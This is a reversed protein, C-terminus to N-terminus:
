LLFRSDSLCAMRSIKILTPPPHEGMFCFFYYDYHSTPDGLSTVFSSCSFALRPATRPFVSLPKTQTQFRQKTFLNIFFLPNRLFSCPHCSISLFAFVGSIKKKQTVLVNDRADLRYSLLVRTLKTRIAVMRSFPIFRIRWKKTCVGGRFSVSSYVLESFRDYKKRNM